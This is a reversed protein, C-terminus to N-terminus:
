VPRADDLERLDVEEPGVAEIYRPVWRAADELSPASVIVYGGVLEKSEAFPGDLTRVGASTNKYRRGRASPKLNETLVHVGARTSEDLLRTLAERQAPSLAAGAETEPTAKRLAMYRRRPDGPPPIIGLDWAETVPRVDIEGDGLIEAQRKAWLVAEELSATKVISFGSPLENGGTFPGRQVTVEGRRRQLRVGLSSPRLGEGALMVGAKVLEGIMAGVREILAADPLAGGEWHANTKHMIIFRPM